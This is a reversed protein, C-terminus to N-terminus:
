GPGFRGCQDCWRAGKALIVLGCWTVAGCSTRQEIRIERWRHMILMRQPVGTNLVEQRCWKALGM